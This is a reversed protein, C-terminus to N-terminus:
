FADDAGTIKFQTGPGCHPCRERIKDETEELYFVQRCELCHYFSEYHMSDGEPLDSYLGEGVADWTDLLSSLMMQDTPEPSQSLGEGTCESKIRDLRERQRETLEIQLSETDLDESM